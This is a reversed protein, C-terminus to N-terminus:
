TLFSITKRDDDDAFNVTHFWTGLDGAGSLPEYIDVNCCVYVSMACGFIELWKAEEGVSSRSSFRFHIELRFHFVNWTSTAGATRGHRTWWTFGMLFRGGHTSNFDTLSRGLFRQLKFIPFQFLRSHGSSSSNIVASSEPPLKSIFKLDRSYM